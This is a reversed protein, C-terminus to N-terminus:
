RYSSFSELRSVAHITPVPYNSRRWILVKINNKYKDDIPEGIGFLIDSAM